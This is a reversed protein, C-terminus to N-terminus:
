DISWDVLWDILRRTLRYHNFWDILWSNCIHIRYNRVLVLQTQKTNGYTLQDVARQPARLSQTVSFRQLTGTAPSASKTALSTLSLHRFRTYKKKFKLDFKRIFLEAAFQSWEACQALLKKLDTASTELCSCRACIEISSHFLFFFFLSSLLSCERYCYATQM